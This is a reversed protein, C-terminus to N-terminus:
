QTITFKQGSGSAKAYLNYRGNVITFPIRYCCSFAKQGTYSLTTSQGSYAIQFQITGTNASDVFVYVQQFQSGIPNSLQYETSTTGITIEQGNNVITPAYFVDRSFVTLGILIISLIYIHKKM